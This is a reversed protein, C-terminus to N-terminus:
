REAMVSQSFSNTFCGSQRYWSIHKQSVRWWWWWVQSKDWKRITTETKLSSASQKHQDIYLIIVSSSWSGSISCCVRKKINKINSGDCHQFEVLGQFHQQSNSHLLPLIWTEQQSILLGTVIKVSLINLCFKWPSRYVVKTYSSAAWAVSATLTWVVAQDWWNMQWAKQIVLSCNLWKWIQVDCTPQNDTTQWLYTMWFNSYEQKSRKAHDHTHVVVLTFLTRNKWPQM